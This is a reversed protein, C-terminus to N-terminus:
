PSAGRCKGNSDADLQGLAWAAADSVQAPAERVLRELTARARLDKSAGLAYAANRRLGDYKARVLPTGPTLAQYEDPSMAALDLASKKGVERPWFREGASLPNSNLPCIDQCIDCGFVLDAMASRLSTPVVGRRNEITQYSLCLSANVVRDALIAETPCASV